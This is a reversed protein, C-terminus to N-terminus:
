GSGLVVEPRVANITIPLPDEQRVCIRGRKSWSTNTQVTFEETRLPMPLDYGLSVQREKLPVLGEFGNVGYKGGRTGQCILTVSPINIDETIIQGQPGALNLTEFDATYGLGLHLIAAPNQLTVKGNTVTPGTIVNGDALASLTKGELHWLGSFVKRAFRWDTRAVGQYEVPITKTPVVTVVTSSTYGTINLRLAQTGNWFVIQNGIDSSVFSAASATLTLTEPPGWTTGGTLTMTTSGTNRGDYSLGCDVFYADVVDAFTRSAMKEIYRVTRGNIVRRVSLYLANERGERVVCVSEVFGDTEHRHWAYVKQEEMFTFGLLQGNDLVTWVTSYPRRQYAWDVISRGEFLHPSRATLDIGGFSDTDLNYQLSRVVNETAEVYIATGGIIIPRVRSAGTYGQVKAVPPSTALLTDDKGNILQESASTLAILDSFPLLHRIANVEVTDLPLDILEDDLVPNSKGFFTRLGVASLWLNNPQNPTGGFALRQKHYCVAEPYGESVSWAAISWNRTKNGVAVVRDPLRRIVDVTVVTSSTFGTIKVIGFGSHLYNWTVGPDGDRSSGETWDPRYSGTTGGAAAQYYHFGARRVDNLAVVKGVEWRETTDDPTQEIYFLSGVMSADFLAADATLTVGTGTAASTYVATSTTNIAKFPGEQNNFTTLTWAAHGTRTLDRPYYLDSVITMVDKNQAYKLNFINAEAYPTTVTYVRAVTGGSSYATFGVTSVPLGHYDNLQFTNATVGAVRFFRGNVDTMGNVGSIYVDDGNSFGHAASTVVGPNAQTIGTITKNAELVHGNDKIVRMYLDGFELEYSQLENFQFPILRIKKEPYRAPSLYKTGPRNSVGGYQRVIFNKCTKLGVYYMDLDVRGYLDPAIEGSAFSPQIIKESAM